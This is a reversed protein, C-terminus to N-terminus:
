RPMRRNFVMGNGMMRNGDLALGLKAHIEPRAVLETVEAMVIVDARGFGQAEEASQLLRAPRDVVPDVLRLQHFFIDAPAAVQPDLFDAMAIDGLDAVTEVEQTTQVPLPGKPWINWCWGAWEGKM